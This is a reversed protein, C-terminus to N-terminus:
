RRRQWLREATILLIIIAQIILVVERTVDSSREMIQAGTRLYGYFLGAVLVGLPNNRALLAVVIGEFGIGPSLNLTLRKLLGNVLHVGTIGALIGSVAMSLAIVRRTNIGGYEAFKLNAGIMRLEYGFPTRNFLLWVAGVAIIMVFIAITVRTGPIVLPLVASAPFNATAIFGEKPDRLWNILMYQYLQIAIFNLMLTSVIEDVQLYAKLLGPILGWLFGALAAAVFILFLHIVLAPNLYLSVIGAALAGLFLQGDAGLSFQRARFVISVALGLLILSISEELWNGFRNMGRVSLGNDGWSLIPLPGTLLARYAAVPEDSVFWTIVFGIGLAVLVVMVIRLWGQWFQRQNTKLIPDTTIQNVALALKTDPRTNPLTFNRTALQWKDGAVQL